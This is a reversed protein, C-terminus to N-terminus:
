IQELLSQAESKQNENGEVIVENLSSRAGETDGMDIFARALDLKTSVEDVDDPLMLEEIDGFDVGAIDSEGASFEEPDDFDGPAFTNTKRNEDDTDLDVDMAIDDGVDFEDDGLDMSFEDDYAGPLPQVSTEDLSLDIDDEIPSPVRDDEMLSPFDVTGVIATAEITGASDEDVSDDLNLEDAAGEPFDITGLVATSEFKGTLEGADLDDLDGLDTLDTLDEPVKFVDTREIPEDVKDPAESDGLDLEDPLEFDMADDAESDFAFDLDAMADDESGDALKAAADDSDDLDPLEDIVATAAVEDTAPTPAVTQTEAFDDEDEEGLDFDTISFNTDDDEAGIDFDASEPKAIGLDAPTMTSDKGASFLANDPAMEYGMVQVRDWYSDAVSGM